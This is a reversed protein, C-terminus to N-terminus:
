LSPSLTRSNLQEGDAGLMAWMDASALMAHVTATHAELPWQATPSPAPPASTVDPEVPPAHVATLVPEPDLSCTSAVTSAPTDTDLLNVQGSAADTHMAM